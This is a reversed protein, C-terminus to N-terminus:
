KPLVLLSYLAIMAFGQNDVGVKLLNEKIWPAGFNMEKFYDSEVFGHNHLEVLLSFTMYSQILLDDEQKLILKETM